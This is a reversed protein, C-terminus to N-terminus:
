PAVHRSSSTISHSNGIEASSKEKRPYCLKRSPGFGDLGRGESFHGWHSGNTVIEPLLGLAGYREAPVINHLYDDRETGFSGFKGSSHIIRSLVSPIKESDDAQEGVYITM